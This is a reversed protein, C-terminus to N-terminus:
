VCNRKIKDKDVISNYSNLNNKISSDSYNLMFELIFKKANKTNRSLTRLVNSVEVHEHEPHWCDFDTVM